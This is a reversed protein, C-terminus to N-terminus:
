LYLFYRVVIMITGSYFIICLIEVKLSLNVGERALLEPMINLMTGQIISRFTDSRM